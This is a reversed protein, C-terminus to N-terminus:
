VEVRRRFLKAVWRFPATVSGWLQVAGHWIFAPIGAVPLFALLYVLFNPVGKLWHMLRGEGEARQRPPWIRAWWRRSVSWGLLGFFVAVMYPIQVAAPIGPIIRADLEQDRYKDRAHVEVASTAIQGTVEAALEALTSQVSEVAGGAEDAVASLHVRGAGSEGATIRMPARSAGLADLFDGFTARSMAEGLGGVEYTQWLWNRGGPQRPVSGQLLVLNVDNEQAARILDNLDQAIEGGKVPQFAIRAGDIRGVLVATQGRISALAGTLSGPDIADVLPAKSAADLKPASSLYKAGGPEIALTRINSKNLPRTLFSLADEFAGREGIRVEVNPKLKVSLAGAADRRLLFAGKDTVLNLDTGKPLKDLAQPNAFVSEESLYLSLKSEAPLGPSLAAAVRTMEDPTGATFVQGERNAFQWHGEPTAHAALSGARSGAPLDALHGAAKGIAGLEPHAHTAAKGAGKTLATLWNAHASLAGAGQGALVALFVTLAGLCGSRRM